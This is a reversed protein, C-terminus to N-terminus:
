KSAFSAIRIRERCKPLECRTVRSRMAKRSFIRLGYFIRSARSYKAIQNCDGHTQKGGTGNRLTCLIRTSESLLRNARHVLVAKVGDLFIFYSYSYILLM